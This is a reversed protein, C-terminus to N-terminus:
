KKRGRTVQGRTVKGRGRGRSAVKTNPSAEAVAKKKASSADTPADALAADKLEAESTDMTETAGGEGDEKSEPEKEGEEEAPPQDTQDGEEKKDPEVTAEPAETAPAKDVPAAGADMKGEDDSVIEDTVTFAMLSVDEEDEEEQQKKEAEQKAKLAAAEEKRKLDRHRRYHGQTRCHMPKLEAKFLLKCLTCFFAAAEELFEEGLPGATEDVENDLVEVNKRHFDGSCHLDYQKKNNFGMSCPHCKPYKEDRRTQM